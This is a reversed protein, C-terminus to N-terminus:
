CEDSRRAAASSEHPRFDHPYDLECGEAAKDYTRGGKGLAREGDRV